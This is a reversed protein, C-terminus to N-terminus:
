RYYQDRLPWRDIDDDMTDDMTMTSSGFRLRRGDFSAGLSFLLRINTM